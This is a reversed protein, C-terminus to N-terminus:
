TAALGFIAFQGLDDTWTRHVRWGKDGALTGFAPRDYERSSETHISEAREFDFRRADVTVVQAIKSVLHMEIASERANWRAEHAFLDLELLIAGLGVFDAMGQGDSSLVATETRVPYYEPLRTSAEFLESGKNDYL